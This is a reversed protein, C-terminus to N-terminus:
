PLRIPGGGLSRWLEALDGPVPAEFALVAGGGPAPVRVRACHLMTRRAALVSGDALVVRPSGGYVRDGLLPIGAHAAHVRLQHTRGTLPELWLLAASATRALTRYRSHAARAGTADDPVVARRRRDRRDIGLSAHWAGAEPEPARPALALYGREYRGERRARLLHEIAAETRAFTVVGTVDADLRSSPHLKPARPDLERVLEVLCGRGDPSTTPVGAPKSVVLFQDDCHLVAVPGRETM